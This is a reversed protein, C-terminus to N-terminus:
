GNQKRTIHETNQTRHETNQARHETNQTRHETNQTRHEDQQLDKRVYMEPRKFSWGIMKQQIKYKKLIIEGKLHKLKYSEVFHECNEDKSFDSSKKFLSHFNMETSFANLAKMKIKQM